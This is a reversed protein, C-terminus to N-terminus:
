ILQYVSGQATILSHITDPIGTSGAEMESRTRKLPQLPPPSVGSVVPAPSGPYVVGPPPPYVLGQHQSTSPTFLGQARGQNLLRLASGPMIPASPLSSPLYNGTAGAACILRLDPTLLLSYKGSGAQIASPLAGLSSSNPIFDFLPSLLNAVGYQFAIDRGRELPIRQTSLVWTLHAVTCAINCRFNSPGHEKTSETVV